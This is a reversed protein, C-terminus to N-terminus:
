TSAVSANALQADDRLALFRPHEDYFCMATGAHGAPADLREFHARPLCDRLAQWGHRNIHIGYGARSDATAANREYVAVEIGAAKLGHALCLSGSGAGIILVRL